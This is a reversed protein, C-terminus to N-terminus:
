DFQEEVWHQNINNQVPDFEREGIDTYCTYSDGVGPHRVTKMEAVTTVTYYRHNISNNNGM